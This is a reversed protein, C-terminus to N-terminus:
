LLREPISPGQKRPSSLFIFPKRARIIPVPPPSAHCNRMACQKCHQREFRRNSPGPGVLRAEIAPARVDTMGALTADPQMQRLEDLIRRSAFDLTLAGALHDHRDRLRKPGLEADLELEDTMRGRGLQDFAQLGVAAVSPEQAEDRPAGAVDAK